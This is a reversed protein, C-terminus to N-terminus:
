HQDDHKPAHGSDGSYGRLENYRRVQQGTLAARTELHTRLHVARLQGQLTAIRAVRARLDAENIRGTRFEGELSQEERLIQGGLRQAHQAMSDFLGQVTRLQAATLPLQGARAADLVHRPGPYGNLEAARALGMGHGDRFDAIEQQTLARIERAAQDRYPSTLGDAAMASGAMSLVIMGVLRLRM